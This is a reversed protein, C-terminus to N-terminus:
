TLDIWVSDVTEAYDTAPVGTAVSANMLRAGDMHVMLGHKKAADQIEQLRELPWISDGGRNSTQEVM